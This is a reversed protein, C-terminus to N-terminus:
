NKSVDDIFTQLSELSTCACEVTISLQFSRSAEIGKRENNYFMFVFCQSIPSPFCPPALYESFKSVVREMAPALDPAPFQPLDPALVAELHLDLHELDM